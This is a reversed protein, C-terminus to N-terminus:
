QKTSIIVSIYDPSTYRLEPDKIDIKFLFEGYIKNVM